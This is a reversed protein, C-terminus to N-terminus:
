RDLDITVYVAEGNVAQRYIVKNTEWDFGYLKSYVGNIYVERAVDKM